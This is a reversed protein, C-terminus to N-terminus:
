PAGDKWGDLLEQRIRGYRERVPDDRFQHIEWLKIHSLARYFAMMLCLSFGRVGDKYGKGKFFRGFFERSSSLFLRGYSFPVNREFLHQAEIATYRNLKDIFHASDTYNFHFFCNNPFPDLRITRAGDTGRIYQHVTECFQVSGRRFFRPLPTLGWGSHRIWDGLIYHRFPIEVVDTRDSRAIERLTEALPRPVMEDADVLLIWDGTAKDVAFQRASDFALVKEHTYIRDTFERALEVTRDESEMDVVVIEDCWRVTELCFRINGEENRTNIVASIRPPDVQSVISM